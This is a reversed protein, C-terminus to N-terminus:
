VNQLARELWKSANKGMTEDPLGWANLQLTVGSENLSAAMDALRTEYLKETSHKTMPLLILLCNEKYLCSVDTDKFLKFMRERLEGILKNLAAEGHSSMYAEMGNLSVKLLLATQERKASFRNTWELLSCFYGPEQLEGLLLLPPTAAKSFIADKVHPALKYENIHEVQLADIDTTKECCFCKVITDAEIFDHACDMCEYVELPRDYDTGIHKLKTLCKPCGLTNESRFDDEHSVHGCTFCHLSSKTQVHSSKCAPCSETYNLHNSSCGTCYRVRDVYNSKELEGKTIKNMLYSQSNNAENVYVDLLPYSYIKLNFPSKQPLLSRTDQMLLWALLKDKPQREIDISKLQHAAISEHLNVDAILGDSLYTVLPSPNITHIIWTWCYPQAHLQKLLKDQETANAELIVVINKKDKLDEAANFAVTNASRFSKNQLKFGYIDM